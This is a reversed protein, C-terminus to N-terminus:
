FQTSLNYIPSLISVTLILTLFGSLIFTVVAVIIGVKFYKDKDKVNSFGKRSLFLNIAMLLFAVVTVLYSGTFNPQGNMNFDAYLSNLKPIVILPFMLLLQFIGLLLNIIGVIKYKTM